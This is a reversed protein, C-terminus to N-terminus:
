GDTPGWGKVRAVPVPIGTTQHWGPSTEIVAWGGRGAYGDLRSLKGLRYAAVPGGCVDRSHQGAKVRRVDVPGDGWGCAVTIPRVGLNEIGVLSRASASPILGVVALVVVVALVLMRRACRVAKRVRGRM